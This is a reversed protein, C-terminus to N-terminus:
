IDIEDYGLTDSLNYYSEVKVEFKKFMIPELVIVHSFRNLDINRDLHYFIRIAVSLINLPLFNCIDSRRFGELPFYYKVEGSFALWYSILLILTFNPAM